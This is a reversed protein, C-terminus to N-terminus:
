DTIIYRKRKGLSDNRKLQRRPMSICRCKPLRLNCRRHLRIPKPSKNRKKRKQNQKDDLGLKSSTRPILRHTQLGNTKHQINPKQIHSALHSSAQNQIGLKRWRNQKTHIKRKSKGVSKPKNQQEMNNTPRPSNTHHRAVKRVEGRNAMDILEYDHWNKAVEM